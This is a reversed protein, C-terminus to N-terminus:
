AKGGFDVCQRHVGKVQGDVAVVLSYIVGKTLVGEVAHFGVADVRGHSETRAVGDDIVGRRLVGEEVAAALHVVFLHVERALVHVHVKVLADYRGDANGVAGLAFALTARRHELHAFVLILAVAHHVIELALFPEDGVSVGLLFVTEEEALMGLAVGISVEVELVAGVGSAVGLM